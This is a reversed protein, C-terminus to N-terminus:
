GRATPEAVLVSYAGMFSPFNFKGALMAIPRPMRNPTVFGMSQWAVVQLGAQRAIALLFSPSFRLSRREERKLIGLALIAPNNRNSEHIVVYKASVRKMEGVVAVPDSVHHLLNSCFVLDFARDRFPLGFATGQVLRPCPNQTLMSRAFDVGVTRGLRELYYTFFGNGCGVDLIRSSDGLEVHKLVFDLKPEAFAAIIPDSPARREQQNEWYRREAQSESTDKAVSSESM